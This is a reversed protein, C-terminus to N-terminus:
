TIACVYCYYGATIIVYYYYCNKCLHLLLLRRQRAVRPLSRVIFKCFKKKEVAIALQFKQQL